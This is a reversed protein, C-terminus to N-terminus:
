TADELQIEQLVSEFEAIIDWTNEAVRIDKKRKKLASGEQYILPWHENCYSFHEHMDTNICSGPLRQQTGIYQCKKLTLPATM